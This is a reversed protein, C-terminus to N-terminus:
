TPLGGRSPRSLRSTQSQPKAHSPRNYRTILGLREGTELGKHRDQELQERLAELSRFSIPPRIFACLRVEIECDYIEQDFDYIYVEFVNRTEGFVLRPGFYPLCLHSTARQRSESQQSTSPQSVVQCSGVYVGLKVTKEDPLTDFNATPFGITRGIQEGRQIQGHFHLPKPLTFSSSNMDTDIQYLVSM